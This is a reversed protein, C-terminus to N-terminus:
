SYYRIIHHSYFRRLYNDIVTRDRFNKPLQTILCKRLGAQPYLALWVQGDIGSETSCTTNDPMESTRDTILLGALGRGVKKPGPKARSTEDTFILSGLSM